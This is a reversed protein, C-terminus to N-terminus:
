KTPNKSIKRFMFQGDGRRVLEFDFGDPLPNPGSAILWVKGGTDLREWETIHDEYVISIKGQPHVALGGASEVLLCRNMLPDFTCNSIVESPGIPHEGNVRFLHESNASRFVEFIALKAEHKALPKIWDPKPKNVVVLVRPQNAKLLTKVRDFDLSQCGECLKKAENDGYAANALTRIQPLVHDNLLHHEMEVEVVWWETYGREVLAFDAKASETGAYVTTKFKVPHFRPWLHQAHAKVMTEYAAEYVGTPSLEEYWKNDLLVKAMNKFYFKFHEKGNQELCEQNEATSHKKSVDEPHESIIKERNLRWGNATSIKLRRAPLTVEAL